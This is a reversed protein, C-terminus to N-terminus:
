VLMSASIHPLQLLMITNQAVSEWAHWFCFALLRQFKAAYIGQQTWTYCIDELKLFDQLLLHKIIQITLDSLGFPLDQGPDLEAGKERGTWM